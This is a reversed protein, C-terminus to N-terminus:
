DTDYEKLFLDVARSISQEIEDDAPIAIGLAARMHIDSRVMSYYQRAAAQTDGVSLVGLGTQRELYSALRKVAAGPGSAYFRQALEPYRVGESVMTRYIMLSEEKLLVALYNRGLLELTDYLGREDTIEPQLPAMMEELLGAVIAAFLGEKNEFYKYVTRKSGGARRVVEDVSSGVYGKELFVEMGAKLIAARREAETMGSRRPEGAASQKDETADDESTDDQDIM